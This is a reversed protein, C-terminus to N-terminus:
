IQEKRAQLMEGNRIANHLRDVVEHEKNREIVMGYNISERVLDQFIEKFRSQLIISMEKDNMLGQLKAMHSTILHEYLKYSKDKYHAEVRETNEKYPIIVPYRDWPKKEEKIFITYGLDFFNLMKILMSWSVTGDKKAKHLSDPTMGIARAFQSMSNRKLYENMERDLDLSSYKIKIYYEIMYANFTQPLLNHQEAGWTYPREEKIMKKIIKLNLKTM